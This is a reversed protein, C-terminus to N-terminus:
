IILINLIKYCNKEDSPSNYFINLCIIYVGEHIQKNVTGKQEGHYGRYSFCKCHINSLHLQPMM